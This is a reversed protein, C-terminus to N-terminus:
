SEGNKKILLCHACHFTRSVGPELNIKILQSGLRTIEGAFGMKIKVVSTPWIVKLVVTHIGYAEKIRIPLNGLPFDM